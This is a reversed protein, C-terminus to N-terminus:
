EWWASKAFVFPLISERNRKAIVVGIFSQVRTREGEIVKVQVSITDGVNFDTLERLQPKNISEIIQHFTKTGFAPTTTASPEDNAEAVQAEATEALAGSDM